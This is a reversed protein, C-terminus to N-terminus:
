NGHRACPASVSPVQAVCEKHNAKGEEGNTDVEFNTAVWAIDLFTRDKTIDAIDDDQLKAHKKIFIEFEIM